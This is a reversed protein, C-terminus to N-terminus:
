RRLGQAREAAKVHKEYLARLAKERPTPPDSAVLELGERLGASVVEPVLPCSLWGDLSGPVREPRMCQRARRCTRHSCDPVREPDWFRRSGDRLRELILNGLVARM